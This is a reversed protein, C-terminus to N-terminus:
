FLLLPACVLGIIPKTQNPKTQHTMNLESLPALNSWGVIFMALFDTKAWTWAAKWPSVAGKAGSSQHNTIPQISM